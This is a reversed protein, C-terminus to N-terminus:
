EWKRLVAAALHGGFGYNLVLAYRIHRRIGTLPLYNLDCEPDPRHLNLTPPLYDDNMAMVTIITEVAGSAGLLHGTFPKTSSIAASYAAPGLAKKIAETEFIDNQATATGHVNIYDIDEPDIGAKKIAAAITKSLLECNSGLCTMNRYDCGYAWGTVEALIPAARKKASDLSELLVAGAGEGIAFGDRTRDFPRMTEQPTDTRQSLVGMKRFGAAILPTVSAETAGALVARERSCYIHEAGVIISLLGTACAYPFNLSAGRFGLRKSVEVAPSSTLFHRFFEQPIGRWGQKLFASHAQEFAAMGGKGASIYCAIDFNDESAASFAQAAAEVAFAICRDPQLHYKEDVIGACIPGIGDLKIRRIASKGRRISQWLTTTGRGFPTVAGMGTIVVRNSPM